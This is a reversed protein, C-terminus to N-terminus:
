VQSTPQTTAARAALGRPFSAPPQVVFGSVTAALCMMLMACVYNMMIHTPTAQFLRFRIAPSTGCPAVSSSPTSKGIIWKEALMPCRSSIINGPFIINMGPNHFGQKEQKRLEHQALKLHVFVVDPCGHQVMAGGKIRGSVRYAGPFM